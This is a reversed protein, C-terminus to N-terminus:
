PHPEVVFGFREVRWTAQASVDCAIRDDDPRPTQALVAVLDWAGVQLDSPLKAELEITQGPELRRPTSPLAHIGADSALCAWVQPRVTYASEPRLFVAITDGARVRVSGRASRVQANAPEIWLEHAPLLVPADGIPRPRMALWLVLAAAMALLASPVIWAAARKRPLEIVTPAATSGALLRDALADDHDRSRPAFLERARAIEDEGSGRERARRAAEDGDIEGRALADWEPAAGRAREAAALAALMEDDNM